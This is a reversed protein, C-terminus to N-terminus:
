KKVYKDPNVKFQPVCSPCCFYYTRGKYEGVDTDKTVTFSEGTVPCTTKIGGEGSRAKRIVVKNEVPPAASTSGDNVIKYRTCKDCATAVSKNTYLSVSPFSLALVLLAGFGLKKIMSKMMM